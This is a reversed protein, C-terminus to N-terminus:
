DYQKFFEIDISLEIADTSADLVSANKDSSGYFYRYWRKFPYNKRSQFNFVNAFYCSQMTELFLYLLPTLVPKFVYTLRDNAKYGKDTNYVFAMKVTTAIDINERPNVDEENNVFVWILPFKTAQKNAGKGINQLISNIEIRSGYLYNIALKWSTADLVKVPIPDTTMHFLDVVKTITFTKSTLNVSLVSYDISNITVIMGATLYIDKTEHLLILTNSYITLIGSNETIDTITKATKMYDVVKGIEEVEYITKQAM